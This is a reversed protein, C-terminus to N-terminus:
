CENGALQFPLTRKQSPPVCFAQKILYGHMGLVDAIFSTSLLGSKLKYGFGALSWNFIESKYRAGSSILNISTVPLNTQSLLGSVPAFSISIFMAAKGLPM